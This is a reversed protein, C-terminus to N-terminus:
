ESPLTEGIGEGVEDGGGKGNFVIARPPSSLGSYNSLYHLTGYEM